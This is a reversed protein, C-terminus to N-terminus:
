NNPQVLIRYFEKRAQDTAFYRFCPLADKLAKEINKAIQIPKAGKNLIKVLNNLNEKSYSDYPNKINKFRDGKILGKSAIQTATASLEIISVFINWDKVNERLACAIAEISFKSAAYLGYMGHSKVGSTSGLFLIRGSKKSRMNPLVCQILNLHSFVNVDFQKKMQIISVEEIAGFIIVGANLILNDIKGEIALVKCVESQITEFDSLDSEIWNIGKVAKINKGISRIIGYVKHGNKSLLRATEFGIGRSAGAIVTVIDHKQM